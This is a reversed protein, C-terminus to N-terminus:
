IHELFESMNQFLKIHDEFRKESFNRSGNLEMVDNWCKPLVDQGNTFLWFFERLIEENPEKGYRERYCQVLEQAEVFQAAKRKEYYEGISMVIRCPNGVAVVNNPINRNVLSAAGIIVNDGIHVGKLITANMGIFVNNGISVKGSSGLVDGYMEKLVSWDYGHTLITVGETIKVNEGITVLWPRTADISSKTPAYIVTNKGIKM